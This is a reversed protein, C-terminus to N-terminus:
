EFFMKARFKKTWNSLDLSVSLTIGYSIRLLALFCAPFCLKCVIVCFGAKLTKLLFFTQLDPGKMYLQYVCLLGCPHSYHKLWQQWIYAHLAMTFHEWGMGSWLKNKVLITFTHVHVWCPYLVPRSPRSRVPSVPSHMSFEVGCNLPANHGLLNLQM